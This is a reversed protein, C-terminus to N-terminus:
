YMLMSAKIGCSPTIEKNNVEDYVRFGRKEIKKYLALMFLLDFNVNINYKVQLKFTETEIYNTIEKTFKKKYFESSFYFILGKYKFFYESETLNLCIGKITTKM